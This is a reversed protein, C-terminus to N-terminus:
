FNNSFLLGLRVASFFVVFSSNGFKGQYGESSERYFEEELIETRIAM